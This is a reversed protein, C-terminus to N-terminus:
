IRRAVLVYSMPLQIGSAALAGHDSGIDHPHEEFRELTLGSDICAMIIDSMKHHFRIRNKNM